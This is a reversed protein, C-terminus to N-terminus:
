LQRMYGDKDFFKIEGNIADKLIAKIFISADISIVKMEKTEFNIFKIAKIKVRGWNRTELYADDFAYIHKSKQSFIKELEVLSSINKGNKDLIKGDGVLELPVFDDILKEKEPLISNYFRKYSQLDIDSINVWDEDLLFHKRRVTINTSIHIEGIRADKQNPTRLEMLNIGYYEAYNKAGSQYGMKTVMIGTVNTLDSLLGYFDRVKGISVTRSYNKCEIAVKQKVGAIEYEWYVDIQHEQGSKGTLKINHKVNITHIGEANILEQYIKQTFREYQINQNM